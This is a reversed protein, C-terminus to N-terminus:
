PINTTRGGKRALYKGKVGLAIAAGSVCILIEDLRSKSRPKFVFRHKQIKQHRWCGLQVDLVARAKLV